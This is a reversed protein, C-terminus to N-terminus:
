TMSNILTVTILTQFSPLLILPLLGSLTVTTKNASPLAILFAVKILNKNLVAKPIYLNYINYQNAEYDNGENVNGIEEIYNNGKEKYTNEIKGNKAYSINEKKEGYLIYWEEEHGGNAFNIEQQRADYNEDKFYTKSYKLIMNHIDQMANIGNETDYNILSHNAYQM